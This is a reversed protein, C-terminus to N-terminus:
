AVDTVGDDCEVPFETVGLLVLYADLALERLIGSVFQLRWGGAYVAVQLAYKVIGVHGLILLFVKELAAIGLALTHAFQQVVHTREGFQVLHVVPM